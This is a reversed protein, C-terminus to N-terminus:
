YYFWNNKTREAEANVRAALRQDDTERKRTRYMWWALVALLVVCALCILLWDM